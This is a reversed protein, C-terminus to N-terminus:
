VPLAAALPRGKEQFHRDLEANVAAPTIRMMCVPEAYICSDFCPRCPMEEEGVVRHNAGFPGYWEKRQPGFLAVVPVGLAAAVHMPGSDNCVLLDCHSLVAMMERLDGLVLHIRDGSLVDGYGSKDGLVVVDAGLANVAHRAVDAFNELAWRRVPQRAGPHIAILPRQLLGLSKLRTAAANAESRSVKLLPHHGERSGGLPELLRLWDVVKHDADPRAPLADTLLFSGGGFDYGIRREAGALFAVLNSRLDMRCDISLDFRRNRLKTFLRVFAIPNYKWPQYKGTFATWPFDIEIIEDVLGSHRLLDSAHPKALLTIRAAPYRERLASLVATSLVVDGIHWLELVLIRAPDARAASAPKRPRTLARGIKDIRRIRELKRPTETWTRAM